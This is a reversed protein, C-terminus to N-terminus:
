YAKEELGSPVRQMLRFAYFERSSIARKNSQFQPDPKSDLRWGRDGFPFLLVYRLADYFQQTVHMKKLASNKYDLVVARKFSESPSQLDSVLVIAAIESSTPVNYQRLHCSTPKYDAILVLKFNQNKALKQVQTKFMEAFPNHKHMLEQLIELIHKTECNKDEITFKEIRNDLEHKTDYIYLSLFCPSEGDSPHLSGLRHYTM